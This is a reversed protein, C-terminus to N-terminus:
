KLYEKLSFAVDLVYRSKMNSDPLLQKKPRKLRGEEIASRFPCEDSVGANNERGYSDVNVMIFKYNAYTVSISFFSKYKYYM